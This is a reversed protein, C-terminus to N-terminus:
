KCIEQMNNDRVIRYSYSLEQKVELVLTNHDWYNSIQHGIILNDSFVIHWRAGFNPWQM